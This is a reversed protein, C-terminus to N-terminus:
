AMHVIDKKLSYVRGCSACLLSEISEILALEECNPCCLIQDLRWTGRGLRSPEGAKHAWILDYYVQWPRFEIAVLGVQHLMTRLEDKPFAKGPMLKREWNIRNTVLFVGGPRLVRSMESLLRQPSPMFELAELCCLADFTADPFPLHQADRWVLTYRGAHDYLKVQAQRLMKLSLDLGIVHGHYGPHDLLARPMRGTGTAIDLVLPCEVQRLARMTPGSLLWADDLPNFQKIGDYKKATLDYTWAVIKAGLYAGETVVFAWYLFAGLVLIAVGLLLWIWM